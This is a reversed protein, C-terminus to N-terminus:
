SGGRDFEATRRLLAADVRNRCRELAAQHEVRERLSLSSVDVALLEALELAPETTMFGHYIRVHTRILGNPLFRWSDARLRRPCRNRRGGRWRWRWSFWGAPWCRWRCPTECAPWRPAPGASSCRASAR